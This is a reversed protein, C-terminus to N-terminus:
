TTSSALGAPAAATGNGTGNGSSPTARTAASSIPLGEPLGMSALAAQLKALDATRVLFGTVAAVLEVFDGAEVQDITSLPVGALEAALSAVVKTNVISDGDRTTILPLGHVRLDRGTMPRLTLTVVQDGHAQVPTSLAVTTAPRVIGLTTTM